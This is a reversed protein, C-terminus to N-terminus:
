GDGKVKMFEERNFEEPTIEKINITHYSLTFARNGDMTAKLKYNLPYLKYKALAIHPIRIIKEVIEDNCVPINGFMYLTASHGPVVYNAYKTAISNELPYTQVEGEILATDVGNSMLMQLHSRGSSDPEGLEISSDIVSWDGVGSLTRLAYYDWNEDLTDANIYGGLYDISYVSDSQFDFLLGHIITDQNIIMSERTAIFKFDVYSVKHISVNLSDMAFFITATRELYITSILLFIVTSM